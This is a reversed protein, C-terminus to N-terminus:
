TSQVYLLIEYAVFIGLLAFGEWRTLINRKPPTFVFVVLLATVALMIPIDRSMIDAPTSLPNLLAALGVVALNNFLNSGIINGVAMDTEGKRASNISAALEPLSTGIAVITLGIVLDSVGFASAIGTAGWVLFRSSIILLILGVISWFIAQQKGLGSGTAPEAAIEVLLPDNAEQRAKVIMWYVAAFLLAMLIGGELRTLTGDALMYWSILGAGFVMPIERKVISSAVPLATMVATIGLILAINTINSGIANGLAIGPSGDLAAMASVVMEPASTGFGVVVMGIILPSLGTIRALAAAGDVFKDSSWTLLLLGGIIAAVFLLMDM